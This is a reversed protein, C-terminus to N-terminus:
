NVAPHGSWAFNGKLAGEQTMKYISIALEKSLKWVNLEKFGATKGM